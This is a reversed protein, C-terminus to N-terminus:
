RYDQEASHQYRNLNGFNECITCSIRVICSDIIVNYFISQNPSNKLHNIMKFQFNKWEFCTKQNRKNLFLNAYNSRGSIVM